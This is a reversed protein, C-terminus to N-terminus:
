ASKEKIPHFRHLWLRAQMLLRHPTVSCAYMMGCVTTLVLVMADLTILGAFM